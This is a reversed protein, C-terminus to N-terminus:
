KKKKKKKLDRRKDGHPPNKTPKKYMSLIEDTLEGLKEKRLKFIQEIIEKCTPCLEKVEKQVKDLHQYYDEESAYKPISSASTIYLMYYNGEKLPVDCLDCYDIKAM